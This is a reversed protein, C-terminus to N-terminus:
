SRRIPTTSSDPTASITPSSGARRRGVLLTHRVRGTRV